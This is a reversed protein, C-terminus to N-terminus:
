KPIIRVGNPFHAAFFESYLLTSTEYQHEFESATITPLPPVAKSELDTMRDSMASMESTLHRVAHYNQQVVSAIGEVRATSEYLGLWRKILRKM